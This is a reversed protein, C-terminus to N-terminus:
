SSSPPCGPHTPQSMSWHFRSHHQRWLWTHCAPSARSFRAPVRLLSRMFCTQECFAGALESNTCIRGCVFFPAQVGHSNTIGGTYRVSDAQPNARPPGQM